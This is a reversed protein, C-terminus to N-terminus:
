ELEELQAEIEAAAEDDDEALALARTLMRRAEEHLELELLLRAAERHYTIHNDKDSGNALTRYLDAAKELRGEEEFLEARKVASAPPYDLERDHRRLGVFFAIVRDLYAAAREPEDAEALALGLQELYRWDPRDPNLLDEGALLVEAAEAHHGKGFLFQGMMLFPVPEEPFADMAQELYAIAGEEDDDRDRLTALNALAAMKAAGGEDDELPELFAEFAEEAKEHDECLMRARGVELWLYVPDEYEDAIAELQERAAEHEGDHLLLIAERFAEGYEDYEDLQDETWSGALLSWRDEDSMEDPLEEHQRLADEKELTEIRRRAMTRIEDSAALEIANQLEAEALELNDADLLREAETMLERALADRCQDIKAQAPESEADGKARDLASEYAARADTWREAAFAKDGEAMDDAYSGGGFLKKFFSM